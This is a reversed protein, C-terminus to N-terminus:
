IWKARPMAAAMRKPLAMITSCSLFPLLSGMERMAAAPPKQMTNWAPGVALAGRVTEEAPCKLSSAM